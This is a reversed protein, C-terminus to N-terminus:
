KESWSLKKFASHTKKGGSITMASDMEFVVKAAEIKEWVEADVKAPTKGGLGKWIPLLMGACEKPTVNGGFLKGAFFGFWDTTVADRVTVAKNGPVYFELLQSSGLKEGNASLSYSLRVSVLYPNPNVLKVMPVLGISEAGCFSPLSSLFEIQVPKYSKKEQSFASCTVILTFSLVLIFILGIKEIRKM